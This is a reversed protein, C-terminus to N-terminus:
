LVAAYEGFFVGCVVGSMAGVIVWVSLSVHADEAHGGGVAPLGHSASAVATPRDADDVMQMVGISTREPAPVETIPDDVDDYELRLARSMTAHM